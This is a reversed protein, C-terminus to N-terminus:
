LMETPGLMEEFSLQNEKGNARHPGNYIWLCISAVFYKKQPPPIAHQYIWVNFLGSLDSKDVKTLWKEPKTQNRQKLPM